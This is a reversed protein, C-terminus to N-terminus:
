YYRIFWYNFSANGSWDYTHYNKKFNVYKQKQLIIFARVFAVNKIIQTSVKGHNLALGFRLFKPMQQFFALWYGVTISEM